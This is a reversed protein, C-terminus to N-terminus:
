LAKIGTTPVINIQRTQKHNRDCYDTDTKDIRDMTDIM